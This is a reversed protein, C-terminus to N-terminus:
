ATRCAFGRAGEQVRSHRCLGKCAAYPHGDEAIQGKRESTESSYSHANLGKKIGRLSGQANQGALHPGPTSMRPAPLTSVVGLGLSPMSWAPCLGLAPHSLDSFAPLAWLEDGDESSGSSSYPLAGAESILRPSLATQCLSPYSLIM